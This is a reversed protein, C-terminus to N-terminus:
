NFTQRTLISQARRNKCRMRMAAIPRNKNPQPDHEPGEIRCQRLAGAVNWIGKDLNRDEAKVFFYIFSLQM